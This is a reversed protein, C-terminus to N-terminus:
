ARALATKIMAREASTFATSAFVHKDPLYRLLTTNKVGLKYVIHRITRDSLGAHRLLSVLACLDHSFNPHSVVQRKALPNTNPRKVPAPAPLPGVPPPDRSLGVVPGPVLRRGM